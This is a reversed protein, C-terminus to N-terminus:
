QKGRVLGSTRYKGTKASLFPVVQLLKERTKHRSEMVKMCSLM